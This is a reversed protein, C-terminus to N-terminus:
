EKTLTLSQKEEIKEVVTRLEKMFKSPQFPKTLYGNFGAELVRERDGVMAHATLAVVILDKYAEDARLEKIFTWGDMIPMSIDSLVLVPNTARVQDLGEKGNEALAVKAGAFELVIKAVDLSNMDDDIIVVDKGTVFQSSPTDSM